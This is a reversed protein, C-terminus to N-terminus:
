KVLMVNFCHQDSFHYINQKVLLILPRCVLVNDTQGVTFFIIQRYCREKIIASEDQEVM